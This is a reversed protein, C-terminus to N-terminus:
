ETVEQTTTQQTTTEQTATQETAEQTTTEQEAEENTNTVTMKENLEKLKADSSLAEEMKLGVKEVLKQVADSSDMDKVIKEIEADAGFFIQYKGEETKVVNLRSLGPAMTAVDKFKVESYIYVLYKNEPLGKALYCEVNKIGEVFEYKLKLEEKNLTSVDNVLTGLKEMDCIVSADFYDKILQNIQENTSKELVSDQSQTDQQETNQQEVNQQEANQEKTNQQETNQENVTNEKTEGENKDEKEKQESIVEKNEESSETPSVTSFIMCGILMTFTTVVLVIKKYKLKM